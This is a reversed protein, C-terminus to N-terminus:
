LIGRLLLPLTGGSSCHSEKLYHMREDDHVGNVGIAEKREDRAMEKGEEGEPASRTIIKSGEQFGASSLCATSRANRMPWFFSTTTYRRIM